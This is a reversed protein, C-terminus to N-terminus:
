SDTGDGQGDGDQMQSSITRAQGSSALRQLQTGVDSIERSAQPDDTSSALFALGEMAEAARAPIDSGAYVWARLKYAEIGPETRALQEPKM